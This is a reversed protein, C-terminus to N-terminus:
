SLLRLLFGEFLPVRLLVEFILYLSVWGVASVVLTLKWSEKGQLRLYLPLYVAIGVWFGVLLIIALIALIWGVMAFEVGREQSLAEEHGEGGPGEVTAPRRLSQRLDLAFQAISLLLGPIAIVYPALAAKEPYDRAALIMAAFVCIFFGSTLLPGKGKM